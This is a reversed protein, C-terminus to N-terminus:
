IKNYYMSIGIMKWNYLFDCVGKIVYQFWVFLIINEGKM